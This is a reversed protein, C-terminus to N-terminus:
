QLPAPPFAAPAGAGGSITGQNGPTSAGAMAASNDSVQVMPLAGGPYKMLGVLKTAPIGDTLEQLDNATPKDYTAPTVDILETSTFWAAPNYAQLMAETIVFPTGPQGTTTSPPPNVVNPDQKLLEIAMRQYVRDLYQGVLGGLVTSFDYTRRNETSQILETLAMLTYGCWEKLWANRVKFYPVPFILQDQPSPTDHAGEMMNRGPPIARTAVIDRARLILANVKRLTNITPPSRMDADTSQMVAALNRGIVQVLYAIGWNLTRPDPGVNPVAYGLQGWTGVNYWLPEDTGFSTTQVSPAAANDAM